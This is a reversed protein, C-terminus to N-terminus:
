ILMLNLLDISFIKSFEKELNSVAASGFAGLNVVSSYQFGPDREAGEKVAAVIALVFTPILWLFDTAM